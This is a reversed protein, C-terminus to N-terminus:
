KAVAASVKEKKGLRRRIAWLAGLAVIGGGVWWLAVLWPNTTPQSVALSKGVLRYGTDSKEWRADRMQSETVLAMVVWAPVNRLHVKGFDPQHDQLEEALTFSLGTAEQLGLLIDQLKPQEPVSLKVQLKPDRRLHVDRPSKKQSAVPREAKPLDGKFPVNSGPEQMARSANATLRYGDAAREWRGEELDVRAVLDMIVWVQTDRFAFGGLKPRHNEIHAALSFRVGTAQQLREFVRSLELNVEVITVKAQLKPDERLNAKQAQVAQDSVFSAALVAIIRHCNM